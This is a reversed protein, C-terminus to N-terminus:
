VGEWGTAVQLVLWCGMPMKLFHDPSPDRCYLEYFKGLHYTRVVSLQGLKAVWANKVWHESVSPQPSLQTVSLPPAQHNNINLEIYTIYCNSVKKAPLRTKMSIVINKNEWEGFTVMLQKEKSIFRRLIDLVIHRANNCFSRSQSPMYTSQLFLIVKRMLSEIKAFILQSERKSIVM